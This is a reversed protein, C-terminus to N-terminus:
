SRYHVDVRVKETIYDIDVIKYSLVDVSFKETLEERMLVKNSIVHIPIKDLTVKVTDVRKLVSPHDLIYASLLVSAVILAILILNTGLISTIVALAVSGFFYAIQTKSIQESRLTFLALIAFLGFGATMSFEVQSLVTLVSFVFINFLSAATVLEKDRYRHYYMGFTLLVMATLDIGFRFLLETSLQLELAPVTMLNTREWPAKEHRTRQGCSALKSM